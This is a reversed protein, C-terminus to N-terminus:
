RGQRSATGDAPVLELRSVAAAQVATPGFPWPYSGGTAWIRTQDAYHDSARHGSQGTQNVWRSADLDALDVVIWMSPGWGVEYGSETNWSTAYVADTGGPIEIPQQNLAWRVPAPGVAGLTQHTLTLTHLAGWRWHVPDPGLRESLEDAAADMASRLM